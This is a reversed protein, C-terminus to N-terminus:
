YSSSSRRSCFLCLWIKPAISFLNKTPFLVRYPIESNLVSSPIRNIFFCATSVADAWFTKLVHMQFLLARAIELLHWNKRKAVGNQSPTDPCSSQHIIDHECLLWSLSFYEGANDTRLTKLSM